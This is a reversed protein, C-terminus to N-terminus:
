VARYCVGEVSVGGQNSQGTAFVKWQCVVKILSGQLLDNRTKSIRVGSKGREVERRASERRERKDVGEGEMGEGGGERRDRTRGEGGRREKKDRRVGRGRRGNENHAGGVGEYIVRGEGSPLSESSALRQRTHITVPTRLRVWTSRLEALSLVLKLQTTFDNRKQAM